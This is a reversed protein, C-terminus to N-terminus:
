SGPRLRVITRPGRARRWVSRTHRGVRAGLELLDFLASLRGLRRRRGSFAAEQRGNPQQQEEHQGYDNQVDEGDPEDRGAIRVIWALGAAEGRAEDRAGDLHRRRFHQDVKLRAGSGARQRHEIEM